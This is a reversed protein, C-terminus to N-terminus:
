AISSGGNITNYNTLAEATLVQKNWISLEDIWGNFQASNSNYPRRGVVVNSDTNEMATYSGSSNDTLSQSVGNVDIGLGSILGSGDYSTNIYLETGATVSALTATAKLTGGTSQDYLTFSLDTSNEFIVEWERNNTGNGTANPLGRKGILYAGSAGNIADFQVWFSVSFASDTTGDGFSLSDDDLLIIKSDVGNFDSGNNVQGTVYNIAVGLGNINSAVDRLSDDFNYHNQLGTPLASLIEIADTDTFVISNDYTVSILDGATGTETINLTLHQNDVVTFSNLTANGTLSVLMNDHFGNGVVSINKATDGERLTGYYDVEVQGYLGTKLNGAITFEESGRCMITVVGGVDNIFFKGEADAIGRLRVGSAQVLEVNGLGRREFTIVDNEVYVGTPITIEIDSDSNVPYVYFLGKETTLTTNATIEAQYQLQGTGAVITEIQDYIANKTAADTNGDWSAGYPTDDATTGGGSSGVEDGLDIEILLETTSLATGIFQRVQGNSYTPETVIAGPTDTSLFYATGSTLGSTTLVGGYQFTFNDVDTVESVVGIVDANAVADAQATVYDTGNFKVAQGVTLGHGVQNVSKNLTAGSVSGPNPTIDGFWYQVGSPFKRVTMYMDTNAIFSSGHILTAGTVTPQTSTNVRIINYAGDKPNANITYTSNSNATLDNCLIKRTLDIASGTDAVIADLLDLEGSNNPVQLVVDSTVNASQFAATQGSDPVGLFLSPTYLGLGGEIVSRQNIVDILLRHNSNGHSITSNTFDISSKLGNLSSDVDGWEISGLGNEPDANDIKFLSHEDQNSVHINFISDTPVGLKRETNAPLSDSTNFINTNDVADSPISIGQVLYVQDIFIDETNDPKFVFRITDFDNANNFNAIPVIITQYDTTNTEDYGFFGDRVEVDGNVNAGNLLQLAFKISGTATANKIRLVLASYNLYSILSDNVCDFMNDNAVSTGKISLTNVAPDENSAFDFVGDGSLTWETPEGANEDYVLQSSLNDPTTANVGVTVSSVRIQTGFDITSESPTASPTGEIVVLGNDRDVAFVDIRPNTPDAANLTITQAPSTYIQGDISFTIETSVFDLGSGTWEVNGSLVRNERLLNQIVVSNAQSIESLPNLHLIESDLLQIGGVGYDGKGRLLAVWRAKNKSNTIADAFTGTFIVLQTDLVTFSPLANIADAISDEETFTSSGLDIERFTNNQSIDNVQTSIFDILSGVSFNKTKNNNDGDTGIWYDNLSLNNDIPYLDTNEIQPM